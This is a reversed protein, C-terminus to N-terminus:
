VTFEQQKGLLLEFGPGIKSGIVDHRNIIRNNVNSWNEHECLATNDTHSKKQQLSSPTFSLLFNQECNM